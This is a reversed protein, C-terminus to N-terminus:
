SSQETMQQQWGAVRQELWAMVVNVVYGLVGAVALAAYAGSVNGGQQMRSVQFGLGPSGAVIQTAIAVVIGISASTRVGTFVAPLAARATVHWTLAAGSVGMVRATDHLLPDVNRVGYRTSFLIPWLCAFAILFVQMSVQLGFLVIAVPILAVAPIPRVFEVLVHTSADVWHSLGIGAGLPVAIAAAVLIGAAWAQVTVLLAETLSGSVFGDVAAGAITPVSPALDAPLVGTARLAEWTAVAVGIGALGKAATLFRVRVTVQRGTGSPAM